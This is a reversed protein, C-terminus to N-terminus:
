EPYRVFKKVAKYYAQGGIWAMFSIFFRDHLHTAGGPGRVTTMIKTEPVGDAILGNLIAKFTNSKYYSDLRTTTKARLRMDTANFM